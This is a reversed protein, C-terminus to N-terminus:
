SKKRELTEGLLLELEAIRTEYNVLAENYAYENKFRQTIANLLTAYDIRSALYASKGSDVAQKALALYGGEYLELRRHAEFLEAFKTHISRLLDLRSSELIAEARSREASAKKVEESQKSYAWIPLTIGIKGSVVDVGRDDPNTSRFMYSAGVEFDPLYNWKSYSLSTEAVRFMSQTSKLQPNKQLAKDIVVKEHLADLDLRVKGPGEPEGKLSTGDSEGTLQVLEALKVQVQTEAQLGQDILNGEEVQLSLLDAQPIKGSVFRSRAVAIIQHILNKEENLVERKKFALFFAYYATTVNRILELKKQNFDESKAESEHLAVQRQKSLKGPFPLKQTIGIQRGTMGIEDSSLSNAPYNIAEFSLMPDEYSGRPGIEANKSLAEYKTARLSPNRDLALQILEALKLQGHFQERQVQDDAELPGSALLFIVFEFPPV